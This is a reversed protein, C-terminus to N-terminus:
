GVGDRLPVMGGHNVPGGTWRHLAVRFADAAGPYETAGAHGHCRQKFIKFVTRQHGLKYLPKRSHRDLLNARDQLVGRPTCQSGSLHAYKEVLAGRDRQPLRQRVVFHRGSVMNIEALVIRVM